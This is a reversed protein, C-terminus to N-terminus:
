FIGICFIPKIGIFIACFLAADFLFASTTCFSTKFKSLNKPSEPFEWLCCFSYIKREKVM